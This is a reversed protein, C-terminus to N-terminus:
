RVGQHTPEFGEVDFCGFVVCMWEALVKPKPLQELVKNISIGPYHGCCAISVQSTSGSISLQNTHTFGKGCKECIPLLLFLAM